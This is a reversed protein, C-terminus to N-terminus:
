DGGDGTGGAAGNFGGGGDGLEHNEMFEPVGSFASSEYLVTDVKELFDKMRMPPGNSVYVWANDGEGSVSLVDVWHNDINAMPLKGGDISERILQEAVGQAEGRRDVDQEGEGPVYAASWSRQTVAELVPLVEEGTVDRQFIDKITDFFGSGTSVGRDAEATFPKAWLQQTISASQDNPDFAGNLRLTIGPRDYKNDFDSRLVAEGTEALSTVIRGYEAPNSLAVRTGVATGFCERTNEAQKIYEPNLVDSVIQGLLKHRDVQQSTTGGQQALPTLYSLLNGGGDHASSGTLAGQFLASRLERVKTGNGNQEDIGGLVKEVAVYDDFQGTTLLNRLYGVAEKPKTVDRRNGVYNTQDRSAAQEHMEDYRQRDEPPLADYATRQPDTMGLTPDAPDLPQPAPDVFVPIPKLGDKFLSKLTGSATGAGTQAAAQAEGTATPAAGAGSQLDLPAPKPAQFTSADPAAAHSGSPRREPAGFKDSSVKAFGTGSPAAAPEAKDVKAPAPPPPPPSAAPAKTSADGTKPLM